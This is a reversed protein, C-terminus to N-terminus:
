EWRRILFILNLVYGLILLISKELDFHIVKKKSLTVLESKKFGM